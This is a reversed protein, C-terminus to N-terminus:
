YTALSYTLLLISYGASLSPLAASKADTANSAPVTLSQKDATMETQQAVTFQDKNYPTMSYQGSM